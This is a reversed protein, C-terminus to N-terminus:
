PLAYEHYGAFRANFTSGAADSVARVKIDTKPALVIPVTFQYDFYGQTTTTAKLVFVGPMWIKDQSTAVLRLSGVAQYANAGSLGARLCSGNWHTILARTVTKGGRDLAPVTYVAQHSVNYTPRIVAYDIARTAKDSVVINGAAFGGSGVLIAYVQNVRLANTQSTDVFNTGNMVLYGERSQYNGDLFEGSLVQVGSGGGAKSVTRYTGGAAPVRGDSFGGGIVLNTTTVATVYGFCESTDCLVLDGVAVATSATFDQTSDVLNTASAITVTSARNTAGSDNASSSRVSMQMAAAPFVYAQLTTNTSEWIDTITTGVNTAFGEVAFASKQMYEDCAVKYLYPKLGIKLEGNRDLSRPLAEVIPCLATQFKLLTTASSSRNVIKCRFYSATAQVTWSAGGDSAFYKFRDSIGWTVGDQSQEVYVTADKDCEINIQIGAVGNGSTGALATSETSGTWTGGGAIANTTSNLASIFVSQSVAVNNTVSVGAAMTVSPVNTVSMTQQPLGGTIPGGALLNAAAWLM